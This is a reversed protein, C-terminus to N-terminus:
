LESFGNQRGHIGKGNKRDKWTHDQLGRANCASVECKEDRRSLGSTSRDVKKHSKRTLYNIKIVQKQRDDKGTESITFCTM